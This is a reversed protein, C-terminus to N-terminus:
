ATNKNPPLDKHKDGLLYRPGQGLSNAADDPNYLQCVKLSLCGCGICSNLSNRLQQLQQIRTDIDKSFRKSLRMWDSKTPARNDPLSELANAIDKLGYGLRQSILIFSVRRIESRKFNRHGSSSRICPILQEDAYFRIASVSTGTRKALQGISIFEPMKM